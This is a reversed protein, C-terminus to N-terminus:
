SNSFIVLGYFCFLVTRGTTLVNLIYIKYKYTRKASNTKQIGKCYDIWGHPADVIPGFVPAAKICLRHLWSIVAVCLGAAMWWRIANRGVQVAARETENPMTGITLFSGAKTLKSMCCAIAKAQNQEASASRRNILRAM